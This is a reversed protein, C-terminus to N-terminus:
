LVEWTISTPRFAYHTDAPTCSNLAKKAYVAESRSYGLKELQMTTQAHDAHLAPACPNSAGNPLIKHQQIM